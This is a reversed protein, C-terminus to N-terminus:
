KNDTPLTKEEEVLEKNVIHTIIANKIIHKM